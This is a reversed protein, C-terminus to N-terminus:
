RNVVLPTVGQLPQEDDQNKLQDPTFLGGDPLGAGQNKLQILCRVKPKLAGGIANLLNAFAPYGSTERTVAQSARLAALDTLYTELPHVLRSAAFKSSCNGHRFIFSRCVWCNENHRHGDGGPSPVRGVIACFVGWQLGPAM